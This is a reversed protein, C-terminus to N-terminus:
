LNGSVWFCASWLEDTIRLPFNLLETVLVLRLSLCEGKLLFETRLRTHGRQAGSGLIIQLRLGPFQARAERELM